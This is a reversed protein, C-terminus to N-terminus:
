DTEAGLRLLARRLRRHRRLQRLYDAQPRSGKARVMEVLARRDAVPWCDLDPVLALFPALGELARREARPWRRWHRAPGGLRRAVPGAAVPAGAARRALTGAHVDPMAAGPSRRLALRMRGEALRRLTPRASRHRADRVIRRHEAAALRALDPRVSRFGLKFYFWFAGSDLAEDNERGIQYPSLWFTRVGFRQCLFGLLRAFVFGSEGQRFTEFVNYAIECGDFLLSADGYGVPVGNKLVLYGYHARLPLRHAPAVGLWAIEVGRGADALLVDDPDAHNFAHVERYRVTVASRAADLIAAAEAPRPRRVTVRPGPLRRRLPPGRRPLPGRQFHVRRGPLKADTRSGGGPGLSWSVRPQIEDYIAQAIAPAPAGSVQRLLWALDSGPDGGKAARLRPQWRIGAEVWAEERLPAVLRPLLAAAATETGADTWDLETAEPFRGALWRAAAFSLPCYITSGAIGSEDLARAGRSGLAAVRAPFSGLLAEVAALIRADDPYARLFCLAEHLRRLLGASRLRRGALGDLLARKRARDAPGYRHKLRDLEDVAAAPALSVRDPPAM